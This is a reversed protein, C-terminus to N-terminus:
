PASIAEQQEKRGGASRGSSQERQTPKPLTVLNGLITRMAVLLPPKQEHAM